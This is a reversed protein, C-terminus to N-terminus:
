RRVLERYDAAAYTTGQASHLIAPPGPQGIAM